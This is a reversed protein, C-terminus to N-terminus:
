KKFLFIGGWVLIVIFVAYWYNNVKETAFGSQLVIGGWYFPSALEPTANKIYNLKVTRLTSSYADSNGLKKYFNYSIEQSIKEDVSWLTYILNKVGAYNFSHGLSVFENGNFTLGKATECASLFALNNKFQQAYIEYIFLEGDNITDTVSKAFYVKTNMPNVSNLETHTALHIIGYKSAKEKFNTETANQRLFSDFNEKKSLDEITKQSFPQQLLHLYTSDIKASKRTYQRKLEDDFVPAFGAKKRNNNKIKTESLTLFVSPIRSFEYKKIAYHLTKYSNGNDDSLLIEPNLYNMEDDPIWIVTNKLKSEELPALLNQYLEFAIKKYKKIDNVAIANNMQKIKGSFNTGNIAIIKESNKNILLAYLTNEIHSFSVLSTNESMKKKVVNLGILKPNFVQFYAPYEIKLEKQLDQLQQQYAILSKQMEYRLTENENKINTKLTAIKNKLFNEKQLVSDPVFNISQLQKQAIIKKQSNARKMEQFLFFDAIFKPDKKQLEYTSKLGLDLLDTIIKTPIKHENLLLVENKQIFQIGETVINFAVTYNSKDFQYDVLECYTKMLMNEMLESSKLENILQLYAKETNKFKGLKLELLQLQIKLQKVHWIDESATQLEKKLENIYKNAKAKEDLAMYSKALYLLNTYNEDTKEDKESLKEYSKQFSEIAKKYKKEQFFLKGYQTQIQAYTELFDNKYYKEFFTNCIKLHQEAKKVNGFKLYGEVFVRNILVNDFHSAGMRNFIMDRAVSTYSEFLEYNGLQFNLLGMHWYWEYPYNGNLETDIIEKAKLQYELAKNYYGFSINSQGLNNYTIALITNNTNKNALLCQLNEEQVKLSVDKNVMDITALGISNNIRGKTQSCSFNFPQMATYIRTARNAAQGYKEVGFETFAMIAHPFFDYISTVKHLPIIYKESKLAYEYATKVRWTNLFTSSIHALLFAKEQRTLTNFTQQPLHQYFSLAKQTDNLNDTLYYYRVKQHVDLSKVSITRLISDAKKNQFNEYFDLAKNLETKQAQVLVFSCVFALILINTKM